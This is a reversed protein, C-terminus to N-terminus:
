RIVVMSMTYIYINIFWIRSFIIIIIIINIKIIIISDLIEILYVIYKDILVIESYM